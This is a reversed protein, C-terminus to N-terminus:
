RDPWGGARWEKGVRREESRPGYGVADLVIRDKEQVGFPDDQGPVRARLADFTVRGVIDDSLAERAEVRILVVRGAPRLLVQHDGGPLAADLDFAPPQALVPGPEPGVHHDRGEVPLAAPRLAEGFRRVTEGLPP